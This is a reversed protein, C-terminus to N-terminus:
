CGPHKMTGPLVAASSTNAVISWYLGKDGLRRSAAEMSLHEHVLHQSPLLKPLDDQSNLRLLLMIQYSYLALM